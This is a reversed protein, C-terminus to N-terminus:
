VRQGRLRKLLPHNQDRIIGEEGFGLKLLDRFTKDKPWEVKALNENSAFVAYCGADMDPVLRVWKDTAMIAAERATKHWSNQRRSGDPTPVPWLFVSGGTNITASLTVFTIERMLGQVLRPEVLYTANMEEKLMIVAMQERFAPDKHLRFWERKHPKRVGVQGETLVRDGIGEIAIPDIRLNKPDFPDPGEGKSGEGDGKLPDHPRQRRGKKAPPTYTVQVTPEGKTLKARRKSKTPTIPPPAKDEGNGPDPSVPTDAAMQAAIAVLSTTGHLYKMAM